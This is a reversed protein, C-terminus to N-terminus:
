KGYRYDAYALYVRRRDLQVVESVLATSDQGVRRLM